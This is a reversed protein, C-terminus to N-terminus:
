RERNPAASADSSSEFRSLPLRPARERPAEPCCSIIPSPSNTLEGLEGIGKRSDATLPIAQARDIARSLFFPAASKVSRIRPRCQATSRAGSSSVGTRAAKPIRRRISRDPIVSERLLIRKGLPDFRVVSGRSLRAVPNSAPPRRRVPTASRALAALCRRSPCRFLDSPEELLSTYVNRALSCCTRTQPADAHVGADEGSEMRVRVSGSGTMGVGIGYDAARRLCHQGHNRAPV